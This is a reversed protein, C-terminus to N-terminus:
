VGFRDELYAILPATDVPGGTVNQVFQRGTFASGHRYINADLWDRIPGFEGTRLLGDWADSGGLDSKAQQIFQAAYVNGLTYTPFYGFSGGSWHVDQLCGEADSPPTIGFWKEFTANWAEPLDKPALTGNVLGRELEFRVALHLNYSLEDAEVRILSRQATNVQRVFADLDVGKTAEPFEAQLQPYWFEWFPHSRGIVNEYGRSQSEHMGLGPASALTRPLGLRDFAQEYIGHGAEHVTGFLSMPLWNTDYRTTLRTDFQGITTCFPHATEDIRGGEFDFGMRRVVEVGFREQGAIHWDRELISTDPEPQQDLLRNIPVRLAAFMPELDAARSGEEYLDHLADYPETEFGYFDADARAIDVLDELHPLFSAFDNSARAQEWAGYGAAAAESSRRVHAAPIKTSLEFSRRWERAEPGDPDAEEVAAVLRDLEPSTGREHLVTSLAGMTRGRGAAGKAPLKTQQDWGLLAMAAGLDRYDGVYARLARHADTAEDDTLWSATTAAETIPHM